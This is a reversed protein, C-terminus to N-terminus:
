NCMNTIASRQCPIRHGPGSRQLLPVRNPGPGVLSRVFLASYINFWVRSGHRLHMKRKRFVADVVCVKWAVDTIYSANFALIEIVILKIINFEFEVGNRSGISFCKGNMIRTGSRPIQYRIQLRRVTANTSHVFSHM